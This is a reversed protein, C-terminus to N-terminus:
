RKGGAKTKGADKSKDPLPTQQIDPSKCFPCAALKKEFEVCEEETMNRLPWLSLGFVKKCRRCTYSPSTRDNCKPCKVTRYDLTRLAQTHGNYCTFVTLPGQHFYIPKVERKGLHFGGLLLATGLLLVSLTRKPRRLFYKFLSPLDKIEPERVPPPYNPISRSRVISSTDTNKLLEKVEESDHEEGGEKFRQDSNLMKDQGQPIKAATLAIGQSFIVELDRLRPRASPRISTMAELTIVFNQTFKGDPLNLLEPMFHRKEAILYHCGMFPNTRTALTHMLVGLSYIDSRATLTVSPSFFEPSAYASDGWYPFCSNNLPAEVLSVLGFDTLFCIGGICLVNEPKINFHLIGAHKMEILARVVALGIRQIRDETIEKDRLIDYLNKAEPVDYVLFPTGDWDGVEILKALFPSELQLMKNAEALYEGIVEPYNLIMKRLMKFTVSRGLVRDHALFVSSRLGIGLLKKLEYRKGVVTKTNILGYAEVTRRAAAIENKIAHRLVNGNAPLVVCSDAGEVRSQVAGDANEEPLLALIRFERDRGGSERFAKCQAVADKHALIVVNPKLALIQAETKEGPSFVFWKEKLPDLIGSFAPSKENETAIVVIM